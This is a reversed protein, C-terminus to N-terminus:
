PGIVGHTTLDDILAKVHEALVPLTVSATAFTTRTATGTPAGWGTQRATLLQTGGRTLTTALNLVGGVSLVGASSETLAAGGAWLVRGSTGTALGIAASSNTAGAMAIAQVHSGTVQISTTGSGADSFCAGTAGRASGLCAFGVQWQDKSAVSAGATFAVGGLKGPGSIQGNGVMFATAGWCDSVNDAALLCDRDSYNATQMELAGIRALGLSLPGCAGSAEPCDRRGTLFAALTQKGLGVSTFTDLFGFSQIGCHDTEGGSTSNGVLSDNQGVVVIASTQVRNTAAGRISITLPSGCTSDVGNTCGTMDIYRSLAVSPGKRSDTEPSALTGWFGEVVTPPAMTAYHVPQFFTGTGLTLHTLVPTLTGALTTGSLSLNTGLTLEQPAGAGSDGRGLLRAGASINQMKAYTVASTAITVANSGSTTVDGSLESASQVGSALRGIGTGTARKGVKGGTGSFLVVEGDVAVETNSSFDGAASGVVGGGTLIVTDVYINRWRKLATGLDYVGDVTPQLLGPYSSPTAPIEDAM